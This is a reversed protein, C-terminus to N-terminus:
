PAIRVTKGVIGDSADGTITITALKAPAASSVDFTHNANAVASARDGLTVTNATFAVAFETASATVNVNNAGAADTGTITIAQAAVAPFTLTGGTWTVTGASTRATITVTGGSVALNGATWNAVTVTGNSVTLAGAMTAATLSGGSVNAGGAGIAATVAGGSVTLSGTGMALTYTGGSVTIAGAGIGVVSLGSTAATLTANAGNVSLADVVGRNDVSIQAETGAPWSTISDLVARVSPANITVNSADATRYVVQGAAAGAVIDRAVTMGFVGGTKVTYTGNPLDSTTVTPPPAIAAAVTDWSVVALATRDGTAQDISWWVYIQDPTARTASQPVPKADTQWSTGTATNARRYFITNDDWFIDGSASLEMSGTQHFATITELGALTAWNPEASHGQNTGTNTFLEYIDDTSTTATAVIRGQALRTTNASAQNYRQSDQFGIVVGNSPATSGPARLINYIHGLGSDGSVASIIGITRAQGGAASNVMVIRAIRETGVTRALAPNAQTSAATEEYIVLWAQYNTSPDPNGGHAGVPYAFYSNSAPFTSIGTTTTAVGGQVRTMITGGDAVRNGHGAVTITNGTNPRVLSKANVNPSTNNVDGVVLAATSDNGAASMPVVIQSGVPNTGATSVRLGRLMIRDKAENLEYSFWRGATSNTDTANSTGRLNQATGANFGRNLSLDVPGGISDDAGAGAQGYVSAATLAGGADHVLINPYVTNSITITAVELSLYDGTSTWGEVMLRGTANVGSTIATYSSATVYIYDMGAARLAPTASRYGIITGFSDIYFNSDESFSPASGANAAYGLGIGAALPIATGDLTVTHFNPAAGIAIQNSFSGNTNTARATLVEAKNISIPMVNYNIKGVVVDASNDPTGYAPAVVVYDNVAFGEAEITVGSLLGAANNANFNWINMTVTGLTANVATIQGLVEFQVIIRDIEGNELTDLLTVYTGYRFPRDTAGRLAFAEFDMGGAVQSGNVYVDINFDEDWIYDRALVNRTHAQTATFSGLIIATNYFETLIRGNALRWHRGTFGFDDEDAVAVLGFTYNGLTPRPDGTQAINTWSSYDNLISNWSVMSRRWLSNFTYMAIEERTAPRTYDPNGTGWLVRVDRAGGRTIVAHEWGSGSFEGQTGYGMAMLLMKAMQTGTVPDNPGFRGDGYGLIIGERYCYQIFPNAWHDNPVDTFTSPSKSLADARATGLLVYSIIKAAESRVITATPDFNGDDRGAIVGLATLVDVAEKYEIDDFDAFDDVNKSAPGAVAFPVMGLAMVLVLVLALTKKINKM